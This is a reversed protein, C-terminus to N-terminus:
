VGDDIYKPDLMHSMVHKIYKQNAIARSKSEVLEEVDGWLLKEHRSLAACGNVSHTSGKQVKQIRLVKGLQTMLWWFVDM